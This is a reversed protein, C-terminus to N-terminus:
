TVAKAWEYKLLHEIQQMYRYPLEIKLEYALVHTQVGVTAHTTTHATCVGM